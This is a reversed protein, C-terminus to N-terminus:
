ACRRPWVCFDVTEDLGGSLTYLPQISGSLSTRYSPSSGCSAWLASGRGGAEPTYRVQGSMGPRLRKGVLGEGIVQLLVAPGDVELRSQPLTDALESLARRCWRDPAAVGRPLSPFALSTSM